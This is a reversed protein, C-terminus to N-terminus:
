AVVQGAPIDAVTRALPPARRKAELLGTLSIAGYLVAFAIFGSLYPPWPVVLIGQLASFGMAVWFAGEVPLPNRRMMAAILGVNAYLLLFLAIVGLKAFITGAVFAPREKVLKFVESRLVREYERSVYPTGPAVAAVRAIAVEDRYAPVYPNSLFGFGIYVSHWFPHAAYVPRYDPRHERLYADRRAVIVKFFLPPASTGILLTLLLLWRRTLSHNRAFLLLVAIALLVATASHARTMHALGAVLGVALLLVVLLSNSLRRQRACLFPLFLGVAMAPAIVYQDGVLFSVIGILAIAMWGVVRSSWRSFLMPMVIAGILLGVALTALLFVDAATTSSLGFANSIRPIFYFMGVDNSAGAPGLTVGDYSVLPVGTHRYGDVAARLDELRSPM